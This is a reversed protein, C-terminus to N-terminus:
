LDIVDFLIQVDFNVIDSGLRCLSDDDVRWIDSIGMGILSSVDIMGTGDRRAGM